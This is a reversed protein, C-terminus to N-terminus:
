GVLEKLELLERIIGNQIGALQALDVDGVEAQILGDLILGPPDYQVEEPVNEKYKSLSLDYGEYEIEVLPV